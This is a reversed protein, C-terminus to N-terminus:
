SEVSGLHEPHVPRGAPKRALRIVSLWQSAMVSGTGLATILTIMKPAERNSICGHYAYVKVGTLLGYVGCHGPGRGSRPVTLRV